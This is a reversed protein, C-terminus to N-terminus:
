PQAAPALMMRELNEIPDVPNKRDDITPEAAEIGLILRQTQMPRVGEHTAFIDQDVLPVDLRVEHGELLVALLNGIEPHPLLQRPMIRGRRMTAAARAPFSQRQGPLSEHTYDCETPVGVVLSAEPYDMRM